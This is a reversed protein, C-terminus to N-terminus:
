RFSLMSFIEKKLSVMSARYFRSIAWSFSSVMRLAQEKASAMALSSM